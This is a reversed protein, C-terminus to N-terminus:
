CEYSLIYGYVGPSLKNLQNQDLVSKAMMVDRLCIRGVLMALLSRFPDSISPTQVIGILIHESLLEGNVVSDLDTTYLGRARDELSARWVKSNGQHLAVVNLGRHKNLESNSQFYPSIPATLYQLQERSIVEDINRAEALGSYVFFRQEHGTGEGNGAIALAETSAYTVERWDETQWKRDLERVFLLSTAIVVFVLWEKDRLMVFIIQLVALLLIYHSWLLYRSRFLTIELLYDLAFYTFTTGLSVMCLLVLQRGDYGLFYAGVRARADRFSFPVFCIAAVFAFIIILLGPFPVASQLVSLISHGTESSWEQSKKINLALMWCLPLLAGGVLLLFNRHRVYVFLLAFVGPLFTPQLYACTVLLVAATFRGIRTVVSSSLLSFSGVFCLLALAYPRASVFSQLFPDSSFIFISASFAAITPMQRRVICFTIFSVGLGALMSPTRALVEAEGPLVLVVRLLLFYLPSQGQFNLVKSWLEFVSSSSSIWFSISEDLWFSAQVPLALLVATCFALHLLLLLSFQRSSIQMFHKLNM